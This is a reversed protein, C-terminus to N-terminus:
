TIASKQELIEIYEEKLDLYDYDCLGIYELCTMINPTIEIEEELRWFHRYNRSIDKAISLLSLYMLCDNASSKHKVIIEPFSAQLLITKFVDPHMQWTKILKAGLTFHETGYAAKEMELLAKISQSNAKKLRNKYNVDAQMLIPVGCDHLMGISYANDKDLSTYRSCLEQTISAVETATDWFRDMPNSQSLTNKLLILKILKFLRPVGLLMIAHSISTIKKHTSFQPSNVTALTISYLGADQKLISIIQDIDPEKDSMIANMKLLIEPRAPITIKLPHSTKKLM